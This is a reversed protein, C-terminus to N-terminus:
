QVYVTELYPHPGHTPAWDYIHIITLFMCVHLLEPLRDCTSVFEVWVYEKTLNMKVNLLNNGDETVHFQTTLCVAWFM